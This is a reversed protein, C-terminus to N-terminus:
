FVISIVMFKGGEDTFAFLTHVPGNAVTFATVNIGLLLLGTLNEIRYSLVNGPLAINIVESDTYNYVRYSFNYYRIIGNTLEVPPPHWTVEISSTTTIM